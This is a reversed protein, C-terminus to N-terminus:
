HLGLRRLEERFDELSPVTAALIVLQNLVEADRVSALVEGLESPLDGFRAELVGALAGHAAKQLGEQLGEQRGEQRLQKNWKEVNESLMSPGGELLTRFSLNSGQLIKGVGSLDLFDGAARRAELNHDGALRTAVQPVLQNVKNADECQELALITALASELAELEARPYRVEDVLHYRVAPQFDHLSSDPALAILSRLDVPATWRASGNYLVVPFIPPLLGEVLRKEQILHHYIHGIYTLLRVPMWPDSKHQFELILCLYADRGDTRRVRWLVDGERRKTGDDHLGPGHLKFNVRELSTLDLLDLWPPRILDRLLDVVFTPQGFIRHYPGDYDPM